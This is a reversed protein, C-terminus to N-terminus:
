PEVVLQLQQEPAPELGLEPELVLEVIRDVLEVQHKVQSVGEAFTDVAAIPNVVEWSVLQVKASALRGMVVYSADVEM